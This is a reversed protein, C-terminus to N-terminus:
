LTLKGSVHIQASSSGLHLKFEGPEVIWRKLDSHYFSFAEEDLTWSLRRSQGPRLTVKDFAKLERKPRPLSSQLDEVYLQAVESGTIKGRNKITVSVEVKPHPLASLVKISLGSYAMTGYSLGFGFPFAPKAGAYRYGVAMGEAYRVTKKDGPFFKDAPIDSLRDPFTMPLRGGPSRVGLLVEAIALGGEQGPYWCELVAKANKLWGAGSIAGGNILVVTTRPNAKCVANILRIQDKYLLLSSRDKGETEQQKSFGAVVVATDCAKAEAVAEALLNQPTEWGLRMKIERHEGAIKFDVRIAYRKGAKLTVKASRIGTWFHDGSELIRKGDLFLEAKHTHEFGLRYSGSLPAVLTGSFRAIGAKGGAFRVGPADNIWDLDISADAIPAAEGKGEAKAGKFFRLQLGQLAEGPITVLDGPLLCGVAHRVEIDPGAVRRLGELVGIAYPPDVIASGGGGHRAPLANPGIAAISRLASRKLPLLAGQNKLLVMSEAATARSLRGHGKSRGKAAKVGSTTLGKILGMRAKVRLIRLVKDDVSAMSVEGKKLAEALKKGFLIPSPMELDLGRNAADTSAHTAGWDSVVLGDFGWENKLIDILLHDQESCYRGNVKNYAAMVTWVGGKQVAKKFHPLYIERLVREDILVDTLLRHTEQNNVAFHKVSAGVGTSQLGQIYAAAIEGTLFPDEGFSEFNRGGYPHRHINVCPALLLNRGHELTEIGLAVGMRRIITKDWTAALAIPAPFCTAKGHRVGAPGDAMRFPLIGLRENDANRMHSIGALQALKEKLTMAKLLGLIRHETTLNTSRAM